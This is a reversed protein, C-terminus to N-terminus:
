RCLYSLVNVFLNQLAPQTGDPGTWDLLEGTTYGNANCYVVMGGSGIGETIQLKSSGAVSVIRRAGGTPTCQDNDTTAATLSQGMTFTQAPGM